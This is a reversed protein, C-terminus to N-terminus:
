NKWALMDGKEKKKRFLFVTRAIMDNQTILYRFTSISAQPTM